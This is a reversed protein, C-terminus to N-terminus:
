FFTAQNAKSFGFQNGREILLIDRKSFPSTVDAPFTNTGAPVPCCESTRRNCREPGILRNRCLRFCLPGLFIPNHLELSPPVSVICTAALFMLDAKTM